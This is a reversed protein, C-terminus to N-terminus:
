SIQQISQAMEYTKTSDIISKLIDKLFMSIRGTHIMIILSTILSILMHQNIHILSM